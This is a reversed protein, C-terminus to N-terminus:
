LTAKCVKEGKGSGITEPESVYRKNAYVEKEKRPYWIYRTKPTIRQEVLEAFRDVDEQLDFHVYVAKFPTSDPQDFEPMGDWHDKWNFDDKSPKRRSRPNGGAVIYRVARTTRNLVKTCFETWTECGMITADSKLARFDCRLQKIYRAIPRGQAEFAAAVYEAREEPTRPSVPFRNGTSTRGKM